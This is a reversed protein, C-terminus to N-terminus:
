LASSNRTSLHSAPLRIYSHRTAKGQMEQLYLMNDSVSYYQSSTYGRYQIIHRNPGRLGNRQRRVSFAAASQLEGDQYFKARGRRDFEVVLQHGTTAPTLAAAADTSTQQWEWRGVLQQEVPPLTDRSCAMPLASILLIYALHRYRALSSMCSYNTLKSYFLQILYVFNYWPLSKKCKPCPKRYILKRLVLKLQIFGQV